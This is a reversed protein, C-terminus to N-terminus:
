DFKSILCRCFTLDFGTDFDRFGHAVGPGQYIVKVPVAGARPTTGVKPTQARPM